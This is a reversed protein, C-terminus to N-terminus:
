DAHSPTIEQLRGTIRVNAYWWGTSSKDTVADTEGDVM